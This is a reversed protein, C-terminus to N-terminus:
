GRLPGARLRELVGRAGREVLDLVRAFDQAGGGYPDPVEAPGTGAGYEMFLGLKHRHELPCERLLAALNGRDMALILDFRAFDAAAVRRARLAGIDV